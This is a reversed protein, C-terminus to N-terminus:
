GSVEEVWGRVAEVDAGADALHGGDMVHTLDREREITDRISALLQDIEQADMQAGRARDARDGKLAQRAQEDTTDNATMTTEDSEKSDGSPAATSRRKADDM